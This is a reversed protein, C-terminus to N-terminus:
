PIQLIIILHILFIHFISFSFQQNTLGNWFIGAHNWPFRPYIEQFGRQFKNFPLPSLSCFKNSKVAINRTGNEQPYIKKQRWKAAPREFNAYTSLSQRFQRIVFPRTRPLTVYAGM